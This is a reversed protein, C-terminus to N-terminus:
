NTGSGTHVGDGSVVVKVMQLAPKEPGWLDPFEQLPRFGHSLYFARTKEYGQDPRSASLTKVQLFAVGAHALADETHRLMAGGIGRRHHEPVVAMVYIEASYPSHSLVTLLGVDRDALSAIVTPSHDAVGVYDEVSEPIGFWTPLTDLIARCIPGSGTSQDRLRLDAGKV